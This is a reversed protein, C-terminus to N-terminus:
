MRVRRLPLSPVSGPREIAVALVPCYRQGQLACGAHVLTGSSMAPRSRLPWEIDVPRPGVRPGSSTPAAPAETEAEARRQPPSASPARRVAYAGARALGAPLAALVVSAVVVFSPATGSGVAHRLLMGVLVTAFWVTVGPAVDIPWARRVVRVVLWGVATGVLFPWATVCCASCPARSTTAPGGWAQSSSSSCSTSCSRSRRAAGGPAIPEHSRTSPSSPRRRRTRRTSARSSPASRVATTSAASRRPSSPRSRACRSSPGATRRRSPTPRSSRPSRVPPRAAARRGQRRLPRPHLRDRGRHLRRGQAPRHLEVISGGTAIEDDLVIARRGSVDGVISDIVVRDDALAGSAVRGGRAPRAAPRVPHRDQRQRPRPSVVISDTSTTTASTTPWSASARHPPRGPGLLLRAGAPAHLTMTLVRHCAPRRRAPRRRAPRRPLHALRGEQGLARLRLPPHGRHDPGRSAGRAADIMLLLEMLHEQTPPVLPQVIYVDRQRCNAQAAAGPPLRQQVPQDRGPSRTVGLDDCIAPRGPATPASGSFVVVDNVELGDRVLSAHTRLSDSRERTARAPRGVRALEARAAGGVRTAGPFSMFGHPVRPYNTHRVEVGAARLAEAYATGEDRLPDLDATQVLAPPLGGLDPRTCRRSWRTSRPSARRGRGRPLARPVHGHRQPHPDAGAAHQAVSPSSMTADVAPYVLAQYGVDAGGEARLVQATM